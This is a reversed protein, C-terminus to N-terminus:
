NRNKETELGKPIRSVSPTIVITTIIITKVGPKKVLQPIFYYYDDDNDDDDDNILLQCSAGIRTCFVTFTIRSFILNLVYVYKNIILLAM